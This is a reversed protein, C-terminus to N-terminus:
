TEMALNRNKCRKPLCRYMYDNRLLTHAVGFKMKSNTGKTFNTLTHCKESEVFPQKTTLISYKTQEVLIQLVQHVLPMPSM